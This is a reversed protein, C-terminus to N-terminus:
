EETGRYGYGGAFDDAASPFAVWWQGIQPHLPADVVQAYVDPLEDSASWQEWVRKNGGLIIMLARRGVSDFRLIQTMGAKDTSSPRAPGYPHTHWIGIFGLVKGSRERQYEVQAQTGDTGHDFYSAALASDPPPGYVLDVYAVEAAEDFAGILMGGTEIAAGRERVGRRTEALMELMAARSIRIEYGSDGSDHVVHDSVWSFRRYATGRMTVAIVAVENRPAKDALESLAADFMLSALGVVQANSGVFTPSSCGPEPFFLETRPAKPFFDDAVDSWELEPNGRARIATKRLIDAAGGSSGSPSVAVLGLSAAHGVLVTIMHPISARDRTRLAELYARVSSDATADIILDYQTLDGGLVGSIVDEVSGTVTLEDRILSLRQSLATAKPAGIDSDVYAQRVLIGPGVTGKDAIALADVGGRVCHEAIPAGLAGAGLVLVRKGRLWEACTSSDRRRTVEPRDELVTMWSTKAFTLWSNALTVIEPRLDQLAEKLTSGLLSAIQSGLDDLEWAALHALEVNDIRRSPTGLIIVNPTTSSSGAKNSLLSNVLACKSVWEILRDKSLGLDELSNALSAVSDPYEFGIQGQVLIALALFKPRGNKDQPEYSEDIAEDIADAFSSWRVVDVRDGKKVCWAVVVAPGVESGRWPVLDGLDARILLDGAEDGAYAVPPHLPQGEPDLNGLAAEKLWANLRAILGRMGDSPNWEVSPAAYLCVHNGWQVHATGAWRRHHSKVWPPKFPFADTAVIRFRERNRIHIGGQAHGIMSTDLSVDILTLGQSESHGLVEIAGSSANALSQLQEVALRNM